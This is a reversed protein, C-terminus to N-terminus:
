KKSSSFIPISIGGSVIGAGLFAGDISNTIAGKGQSFAIIGLTTSVMSFSTLVIGLTKHNRRIKELKLISNFDNYVKPNDLKFKNVNIKFSELKKF